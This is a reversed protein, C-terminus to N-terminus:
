EGDLCDGHGLVSRGVQWKQHRCLADDCERAIRDIPAHVLDIGIGLMGTVGHGGGSSEGQDIVAAQDHEIGIGPPFSQEIGSLGCETRIAFRRM